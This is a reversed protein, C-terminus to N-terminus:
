CPGDTRCGGQSSERDRIILTEEEQFLSTHHSRGVGAGGWKSRGAAPIGEATPSMHCGVFVGEQPVRILIPLFTSKGVAMMTQVGLPSSHVLSPRKSRTVWAVLQTGRKVLVSM